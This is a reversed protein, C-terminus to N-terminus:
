TYFKGKLRILLKKDCLVKTTARWMLWGVQIRHIVNGDIEGNSLIVSGLYKFMTMGVVVYEGITVDPGDDQEKGSFNCRM